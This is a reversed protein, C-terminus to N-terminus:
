TTEEKLIVMAIKGNKQMVNYKYISKYQYKNSQIDKFEIELDVTIFESKDGVEGINSLLKETLYGIDFEKGESGPELLAITKVPASFKELGINLDAKTVNVYGPTSGVNKMNIFLQYKNPGESLDKPFLTVSVYPRRKIEFEYYAFTITVLAVLSLVTEPIYFSWVFLIGLLFAM